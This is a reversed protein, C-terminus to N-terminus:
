LSFDSLSRYGTTRAYLWEKGGIVPNHAFQSGGANVKIRMFDFRMIKTTLFCLM